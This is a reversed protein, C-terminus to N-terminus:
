LTQVQKLKNLVEQKLTEDLFDFGEILKKTERYDRERKMKEKEKRSRYEELTEFRYYTVRFSDPDNYYETREIYCKSLKPHSEITKSVFQTIRPILEYFDGEFIEDLSIIQSYDRINLRNDLYDQNDVTSINSQKKKSSTM